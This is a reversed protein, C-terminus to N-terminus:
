SSNVGAEGTTAGWLLRGFIPVGEGLKMLIFNERRDVEVEFGVLSVESVPIGGPVGPEPKSFSFFFRNLFFQPVLELLVGPVLLPLPLSPAPPRIFLFFCGYLKLPGFSM